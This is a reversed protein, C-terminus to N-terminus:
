YRQGRCLIFLRILITDNLDSVSYVISEVEEIAEDCMPITTQSFLLSRECELITRLETRKM